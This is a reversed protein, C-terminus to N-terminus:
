YNERWPNVNSCSIIVALVFKDVIKKSYDNSCLKLM